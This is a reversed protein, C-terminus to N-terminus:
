DYYFAILNERFISLTNSEIINLPLDDWGRCLRVFFSNKFVNTRSFPVDITLFDVNRLPKTRSRFSIYNFINLKYPNKLCKFFFVLDNIKRRYKLPLLNLKGLASTSLLIGEM